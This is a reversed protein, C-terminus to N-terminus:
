SEYCWAASEIIPERAIRGRQGRVFQVSIPEEFGQPTDGTVLAYIDAAIKELSMSYEMWQRRRLRFNQAHWTQPIDRRCRRIKMVAASLGEIVRNPFHAESLQM